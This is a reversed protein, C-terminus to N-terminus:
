PKTPWKFGDDNMSQYTKTIDRLEQRYTKMDDTLTQDSLALHDTDKLLANRYNRLMSLDSAAIEESTLANSTFKSGDYNFGVQVNDDCDVWVMSEHVDFEKDVVEVVKKNFTLAKKTM